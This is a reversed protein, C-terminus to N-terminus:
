VCLVRVLAGTVFSCLAPLDDECYVAEFADLLRDLLAAPPRCGTQLM